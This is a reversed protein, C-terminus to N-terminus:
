TGAVRRFCHRCPTYTSLEPSEGTLRKKIKSDDLNCQEYAPYLHLVRRGTVVYQIAPRDISDV